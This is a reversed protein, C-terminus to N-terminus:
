RSNPLFVSLDHSFVKLAEIRSNLFAKLKGWQIPQKGVPSVPLVDDSIWDPFLFSDAVDEKLITIKKTWIDYKYLNYHEKETQVENLKVQTASFVIARNGDMWDIGGGKYNKPIKLEQSQGTILDYIFYRYAQPILRGVGDVRAPMVESQAYLLRKGDPSFKPYLRNILLRDQPLPSLLERLNRGDAGMIWLNAGSKGFTPVRSFVIYKGDPSFTPKNSEVRAIKKVERSELNLLCIYAEAGRRKFLISRGDPSFSSHDGTTLQRINKGDANMIFIYQIQPNKPAHRREFVIQKGDPSWRPATILQFPQDTLLTVSSGDDDMVYLSRTALPDEGM